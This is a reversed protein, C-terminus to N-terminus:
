EFFSSPDDEMARFDEQTTRLLPLVVNETLERAYNSTGFCDKMLTHKLIRLM